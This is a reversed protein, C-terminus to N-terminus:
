SSLASASSGATSLFYSFDVQLTHCERSLAFVSVWPVGSGVLTVVEVISFPGNITTVPCSKFSRCIKSSCVSPFPILM